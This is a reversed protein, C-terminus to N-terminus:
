HSEDLDIKLKRHLIKDNKKQDNDQRDKKWIM